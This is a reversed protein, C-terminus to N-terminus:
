ISALYKDTKSSIRNHFQNQKLFTWSGLSLLQHMTSNSVKKMFQFCVHLLFLFFVPGNEFIQVLNRNNENLCASCRSLSFLVFKQILYILTCEYSSLTIIYEFPLNVSEMELFFLPSSQKTYLPFVNRDAQVATCNLPNNEGKQSYTGKTRYNFINHQASQKWSKLLQWPLELLHM